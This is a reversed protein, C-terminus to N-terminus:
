QILQPIKLSCSIGLCIQENFVVQELTVIIALVAVILILGLIAAQIKEQAKTVNEKNGGSTIWSLAGLLLYLLAVIGAIIFFGRIAFSLVDTLSPPTFQLPIEGIDKAPPGAYVVPFLKNLVLSFTKM